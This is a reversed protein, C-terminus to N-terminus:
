LATKTITATVRKMTATAMTIGSTWGANTIIAKMPVTTTTTSCKKELGMMLSMQVTKVIQIDTM